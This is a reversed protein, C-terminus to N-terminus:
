LTECMPNFKQYFQDLINVWKAKGEAIKDLYEEFDATFKIEMIPNFHELLFKVIQNGLETPVLKKSEKGVRIQKVSEKIKLKVLELCKSDKEIGDINKIEVYKKDIIKNIISAYTSPRGIGNKELFKILGAENFRLPLKTYEESIKIKQM